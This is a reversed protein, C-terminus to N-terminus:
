SEDEKIHKILQRLHHEQQKEEELKELFHQRDAKMREIKQMAVAETVFTGNSDMYSKIGMFTLLLGIVAFQGFVRTHMIQSQVQLHAKQKRNTFIYLITPVGICTLIKFPHQQFTNAMQHHVGLTDGPVIRLGSTEIGQRYVNLMQTESEPLRGEPINNQNGKMQDFLYRNMSRAHESESAMEEMKQNVKQESTLGFVFLPPMIVLATRSQWNTSKVFTPSTKMFYWLAGSSPILTVLGSLLGESFSLNAVEEARNLPTQSRGQSQAANSM